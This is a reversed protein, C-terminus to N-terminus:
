KQRFSEPYIRKMERIHKRKKAHYQGWPSTKDRANNRAIRKVYSNQQPKLEGVGLKYDWQAGVEKERFDTGRSGGPRAMEAQDKIWDLDSDDEDFPKFDDPNYWGFAKKKGGSGSGGGAGGGAGGGGGGWAANDLAIQEMEAREQERKEQRSRKSAGHGRVEGGILRIPVNTGRQLAKLSTRYPNADIVAAGRRKLKRGPIPAKYPTHPQPQPALPRWRPRPFRSRRRHSMSPNGAPLSGMNGM